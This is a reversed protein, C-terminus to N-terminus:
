NDVLIHFVGSKVNGGQAIVFKVRDNAMAVPVLPDDTAAVGVLTHVPQRPAVVASANVDSQTWLSQGTAESTFAFDVGNAFDGKVYNIQHIKGAIRPSYKEAAGAADTTIEVRYRRM